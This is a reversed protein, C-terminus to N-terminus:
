ASIGLKAGLGVSVKRGVSCTFAALGLEERPFRLTCFNLGPEHSWRQTAGSAWQSSIEVARTLM